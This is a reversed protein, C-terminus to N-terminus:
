QAVAYQVELLAEKLSCLSPCKALSKKTAHRRTM